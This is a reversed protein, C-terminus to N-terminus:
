NIIFPLTIIYNLIGAQSNFIKPEITERETLLQKIVKRVANEYM